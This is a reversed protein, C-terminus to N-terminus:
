FHLDSRTLPNENNKPYFLFSLCVKTVRGAEVGAAGKAVGSDEGPGWEASSNQVEQGFETAKQRSWRGQQGRPRARGRRELGM